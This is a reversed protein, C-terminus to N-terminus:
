EETHNLERLTPDSQDFRQQSAAARPALGRDSKNGDSMAKVIASAIGTGLRVISGNIDM